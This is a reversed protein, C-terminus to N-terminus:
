AGMPVRSWAADGTAGLLVLLGPGLNRLSSRAGPLSAVSTASTLTHQHTGHPSLCAANRNSHEKLMIRSQDCGTGRIRQDGVTGESHNVLTEQATKM